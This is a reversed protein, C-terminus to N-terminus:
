KKYIKFLTLLFILLALVAVFLAVSSITYVFQISTEPVTRGERLKKVTDITTAFYSLTFVSLALGVWGALTSMDPMRSVVSNFSSDAM